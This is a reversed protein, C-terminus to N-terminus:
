MNISNESLSISKCVYSLVPAYLFSVKYGAGGVKLIEDANMADLASQVTEDLHSRTTVIILKDAPPNQAELGGIGLGILGWITRGYMNGSKYDYYPQHIVGGVPRGNVALGVLVTVHEM